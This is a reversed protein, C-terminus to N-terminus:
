LHAADRPLLPHQETLLAPVCWLCACVVSCALLGSVLADGPFCGSKEAKDVGASVGYGVGFSVGAGVAMGAVAMIILPVM